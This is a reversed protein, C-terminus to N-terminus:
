RMTAAMTCLLAALFGEAIVHDMTFYTRSSGVFALSWYKLSAKSGFATAASSSSVGSCCSCSTWCASVELHRFKLAKTHDLILSSICSRSGAPSLSAGASAHFTFSSTCSPGGSSMANSPSGSGMATAPILRSSLHRAPSRSNGTSFCNSIRWATPGVTCFGLAKTHDLILYKDEGGAGPPALVPKESGGAGCRGADECANLLVGCIVWSTFISSSCGSGM